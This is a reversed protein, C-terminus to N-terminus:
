HGHEDGGGAVLCFLPRLRKGGAALLRVLEEAPIAASDIGVASWRTREQALLLSMREEAQGLM